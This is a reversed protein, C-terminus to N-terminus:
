RAAAATRRLHVDGEPRHRDVRRRRPRVARDGRLDADRDPPLRRRRPHRTRPTSLTAARAAVHEPLVDYTGRPAQLKEAMVRSAVARALFPNPAREAGLTTLGMHGPHVVTEDHFRTWCRRRDVGAPDRSRRGPLDTRGISGQFLVDGSFRLRRATPRAPSRMPSTARATAPRSRHRRHRLGALQLREGGTVTHESGLVRVSRLGALARLGHHGAPADREIEPCYVRRGPPRRWAARGRRRPRLPTHTLLIAELTM